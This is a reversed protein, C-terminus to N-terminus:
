LNQCLSKGTFEVSLLVVLLLLATRSLLSVESVDLFCDAWDTPYVILQMRVYYILFNILSVGCVCMNSVANWTNKKKLNSLYKM